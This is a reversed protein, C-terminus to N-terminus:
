PALRTVWSFSAGATIERTGGIACLHAGCRTIGYVPHGIPRPPALPQMTIPDVRTLGDARINGLWGVGDFVALVLGEEALHAPEVVIRNIATDIRWVTLDTVVSLTTGGQLSPPERKSGTRTLLLGDGVGVLRYGHGVSPTEHQPSDLTAVVRETAPDIRVLTGNLADGAWLAGDAFALMAAPGMGSPPDQTPIPVSAVVRNTAPDIRYLAWGHVSILVGGVLHALHAAAVWISGAGHALLSPNRSVEVSAIIKRSAPDIRHVKEGGAGESVWLSGEALVLSSGLFGGITPGALVQGSAIDSRVLQQYPLAPYKRPVAVVAWLADETEVVNEVFAPVTFSGKLALPGFPPRPAGTLGSSRAPTAAIADGDAPEESGAGISAVLM